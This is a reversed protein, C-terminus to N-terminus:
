KTGIEKTVSDVLSIVSNKTTTCMRVM